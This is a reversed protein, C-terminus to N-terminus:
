PLIEILELDFILSSNPQIADGSGMEGYALNAPVYLRYKAGEPMMQLAETWAPIVQSVQFEVPQERAISSDFVTGDLLRGEYNVLVKASAKPKKGTGATIVEYQLGSKSSFIDPNKANQTLFAQGQELNEQALQKFEVLKKEDNHKIYQKRVDIMEAESISPNKGATGEKLGQYFANLNLDKLIEANSLGMQYGYSYSLQAQKSSHSTVDAAYSMQGMLILPLLLFVNKKM